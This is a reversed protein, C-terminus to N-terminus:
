ECHNEAAERFQAMIAERHRETDAYETPLPQILYLFDGKSRHNQVLEEFTDGPQWIAPSVVAVSLDPRRKKLVAVTGLHNESHFTGTLHLIQAHPQAESAQIIQQAMTNDRLLQAQYSNNLREKVDPNLAGHGHGHSMTNFFKEQYARTSALPLEPLANRTAEDLQDLYALGQRGVCRVIDGPANAAIVPLHHAKAFEVQPRYAGAYNHWANADEIMEAEGSEGQLYRNLEAQANLEFQEMSLVQQPRHEYLASQVLTQLLHSAHHGHFEGIIVVDAEAMQAALQNISLRKGRDDTIIADYQTKPPLVTGSGTDGVKSACGAIFYFLLFLVPITSKTM